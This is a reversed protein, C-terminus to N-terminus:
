DVYMYSAKKDNRQEGDLRRGVSAILCYDIVFYNFKIQAFVINCAHDTLLLLLCKISLLTYLSKTHRHGALTMMSWHLTM